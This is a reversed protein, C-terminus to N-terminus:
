RCGANEAGVKDATVNCAGVCYLWICMRVRTHYEPTHSVQLCASTVCLYIRVCVYMRVGPNERVSSSVRVRKLVCECKCICHVSHALM